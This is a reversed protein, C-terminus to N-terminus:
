HHIKKFYDQPLNNMVDQMECEPGGAKALAHFVKEQGKYAAEHLPTVGHKDALAVLSVVPTAGRSNGKENPEAGAAVLLDVIVSRGQAAAAHLPTKGVNNTVSPSAGLKLLLEVVDINGHHAACYLPSWGYKCRADLLLLGKFPATITSIERIVSVCNFEAAYHLANLGEGDATNPDCGRMILELTPGVLGRGASRRLRQGYYYSPNQFVELFSAFDKETLAAGADFSPGYVKEVVARLGEYTRYGFSKVLLSEIDGQTLSDGSDFIKMIREKHEDSLPVVPGENGLISGSHPSCVNKTTAPTFMVTSINRQYEEEVRIAELEAETPEASTKRKRGAMKYIASLSFAVNLFTHLYFNLRFNSISFLGINHNADSTIFLASM